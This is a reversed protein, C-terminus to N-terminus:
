MMAEAEGSRILEVLKKAVDEASDVPPMGGPRAAYDPHSGIANKGFNTATMKPHMVSIVINDKALEQRATLSLANLAYKTSAYASLYPFYNKSVMSSVNVITGGGQARMIPIVAQMARVVAYVNLEMINKYDDVDIHEFPGYMGQGANNVLVNIKGYKEITKNILDKIDEPKRMDVVVALSDPLKKELETIVDASRAALVVKAGQKSLIEATALGIGGSAGTVVVVKNQLEMGEHYASPSLFALSRM